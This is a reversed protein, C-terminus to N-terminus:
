YFINLKSGHMFPLVLDKVLQVSKALIYIRYNGGSKHVSCRINYTDTLYSALRQVDTLIFSDTCIYLGRCTGRSGDQMILHALALPTLLSLDEPVRKVKNLYFLSYFETLMPLARSWFNLSKYSKGTRKDVYTHERFKGSCISSLSNCVSLFYDKHGESQTFGFRANTGRPPLELKGDGLLSGFIIEKVQNTEIGTGKSSFNALGIWKPVWNLQSFLLFFLMEDLGVTYMHHSWVVFGLVGISM